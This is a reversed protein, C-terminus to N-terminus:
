RGAFETAAVEEPSRVLYRGPDSLAKKLVQYMEAMQFGEVLRHDGAPHLCHARPDSLHRFM